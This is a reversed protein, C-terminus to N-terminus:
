KSYSIIQLKISADINRVTYAITSDSVAFAHPGIAPNHYVDAAQPLPVVTGTEANLVALQQVQYPDSAAAYDILLNEADLWAMDYPVQQALAPYRRLAGTGLDFLALEQYLAESPYDPSQRSLRLLVRQPDDPSFRAADVFLPAFPQALECLKTGAYYYWGAKNYFLATAHQADWAVQTSLHPAVFISKAVPPIRLLPRALARSQLNLPQVAGTDNSILTVTQDDVSLYPADFVQGDLLVTDNASMLLSGTRTINMWIPVQQQADWFADGNSTVSGFDHRAGTQVNLTSIESEEHSDSINLLLTHADIWRYVDILTATYVSTPASFQYSAPDIQPAASSLTASIPTVACPDIALAPQNQGVLPSPTPTAPPAPSATPAPAAPPPPATSTLRPAAAAQPSAPPVDAQGCAALLLAGLLGLLLWLRMRRM